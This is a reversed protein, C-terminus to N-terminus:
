SSDPNPPEPEPRGSDSEGSEASWDDATERDAAETERPPVPTMECGEDWSQPLRVPPHGIKRCVERVLEEASLTDLQADLMEDEVLSEWAMARMCEVDVGREPQATAEGVMQAARERRQRRRAEEGSAKREDRRTMFGNRIRDTLAVTLRVSRTLRAQILGFAPSPAKPDHHAREQQRETLRKCRMDIEAAERLTTLAWGTWHMDPDTPRIPESRAENM